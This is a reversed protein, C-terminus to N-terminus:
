TRFQNNPASIYIRYIINSWFCYMYVYKNFYIKSVGLELTYIYIYIYNKPNIIKKLEYLLLEIYFKKNSLIVILIWHVNTAM